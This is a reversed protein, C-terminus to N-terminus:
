HKTGESDMPELVEGNDNAVFRKSKSNKQEYEHVDNNVPKGYHKCALVMKREILNRDYQSNSEKNNSESRRWVLIDFLIYMLDRQKQRAYQHKNGWCYSLLYRAAWSDHCRNLYIKLQVCSEQFAIIARDQTSSIIMSWPTMFTYEGEEVIQNMIKQLQLNMNFLPQEAAITDHSFFVGTIWNLIVKMSLDIAVKKNNENIRVIKQSIISLTTLSSDQGQKVLQKVEKLTINVEDIKEELEKNKRKLDKIEDETRYQSEEISTTTRQTQQILQYTAKSATM